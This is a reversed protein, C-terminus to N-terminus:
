GCIPEREHRWRRKYQAVGSPRSLKQLARSRATLNQPWASCGSHVGYWHAEAQKVTNFSRFCVNCRYPKPMYRSM